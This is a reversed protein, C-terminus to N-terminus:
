ASGGGGFFDFGEAGGGGSTAWGAFGGFDGPVEAGAEESGLFIGGVLLFAASRVGLVFEAELLNEPGFVYEADVLNEAGPVPDAELLNEPAFAYEADLLIETGLVPDAELLNESAVAYEADLL